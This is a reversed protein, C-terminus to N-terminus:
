GEDEGCNTSCSRVQEVEGDVLDLLGRVGGEEIQALFQNSHTGSEM